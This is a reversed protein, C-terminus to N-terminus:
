PEFSLCYFVLKIEPKGGDMHADNQEESRKQQPMSGLLM